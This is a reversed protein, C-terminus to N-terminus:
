DVLEVGSHLSHVLSALFIKALQLRKKFFYKDYCSTFEYVIWNCRDVKLECCMEVGGRM